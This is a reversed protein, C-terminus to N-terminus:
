QNGTFFSGRIALLDPRDAIEVGATRESAGAGPFQHCAHRPEVDVVLDKSAAQCPECIGGPGGSPGRFQGDTEVRIQVRPHARLQRPYVGPEIAIDAEARTRFPQQVMLICQHETKLNDESKGESTCGFWGNRSWHRSPPARSKLRLQGPSSYVALANRSRKSS